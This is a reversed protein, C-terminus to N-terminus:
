LQIVTKMVENFVNEVQANAQFNHQAGILDVMEKTLDVNSGEYSGANVNNVSSAQTIIPSGSNGTELWSANGDNQLNQPSQFNAIAVQGAIVKQSNDYTLVVVGNNDIDFNVLKGAQYGDTVSSPASDATAFQKNSNDYLVSISQPGLAGASPTFSLNNLGSVSNFSGDTNFAISGTGLPTATSAGANAIEAQVTWTDPTTGSKIYYLHLTFQNGLSDYVSSSSHFNYSTPDTANFTTTTPVVDNSNLYLNSLTVISSPKAPIPSSNIQLDVLSSGALIANNIAPYGQLRQTGNLTTLYGQYDTGFRGARSYSTLGSGPDKLIFFGNRNISLDTKIGTSQLDGRSFDQLLSDMNVGLGPQIGAAGQGTPYIDAFNAYSRKFGATSANAINNSIIEMEQMSASMGSNAINGIGM